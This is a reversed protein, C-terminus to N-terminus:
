RPGARSPTGAATITRILDDGHGSVLTFGIADAWRSEVAAIASAPTYLGSAIVMGHFARRLGQGLASTSLDGREPTATGSLHLWAIEMGALATLLGDYFNVARKDNQGTIWVFPALQVGVREAGWIDILAQVTELLPTAPQPAVHRTADLEIGDFGAARLLTAMGRCAVLRADTSKQNSAAAFADYSVQAVSTGGKAHVVDNVRSWTVKGPLHEHVSPGRPGQDPVFAHIVLGGSPAQRTYSPATWRGRTPCALVVVRHSLALAGLDVPTLLKPMRPRRRAV